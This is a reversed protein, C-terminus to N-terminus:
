IITLKFNFIVKLMSNLDKIPTKMLAEDSIRFEELLKTFEDINTEFLLDCNLNLDM